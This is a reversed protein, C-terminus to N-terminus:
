ARQLVRVDELNITRGEIALDYNAQLGMWFGPTTGFYKALRLATDATIPRRGAIIAYIRPADVRLDVALRNRSIGLPVLFEEQLIEGPHIPTDDVVELEKYRDLAAADDRQITM